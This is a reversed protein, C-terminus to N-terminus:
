DILFIEAGIVFIAIVNFVGIAGIIKETLLYQLFPLTMLGGTLVIFGIALTIIKPVTIKKSKGSVIKQINGEFLLGLGLVVSLWQFSSVGVVFWSWTNIIFGILSGISLSLMFASNSIKKKIRLRLKSVM